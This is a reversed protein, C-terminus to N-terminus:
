TGDKLKQSTSLSISLFASPKGSEDTFVKPANEYVGVRVIRSDAHVSPANLILAFLFLTIRQLYTTFNARM